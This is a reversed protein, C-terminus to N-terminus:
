SQDEFQEAIAYAQRGERHLCLEQMRTQAQTCAQRCAELAQAHAQRLSSVVARDHTGPGRSAVLRALLGHVEADLSQLAQWDRSQTCARLRLTLKEMTRTDDM